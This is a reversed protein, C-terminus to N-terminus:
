LILNASRVTVDHWHQSPMERSLIGLATEHKKHLYLLKNALGKLAEELRINSVAM